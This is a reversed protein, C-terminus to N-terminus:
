SHILSICQKLFNLYSLFTSCNMKVCQTFVLFFTCFWCLKMFGISTYQSWQCKHFFCRIKRICNQNIIKIFYSIFSEKRKPTYFYTQFSMLFSLLLFVSITILLVFISPYSSYKLPFLWVIINIFSNIIANVTIIKFQSIKKLNKKINSLKRM